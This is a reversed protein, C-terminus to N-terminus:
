RAIEVTVVADIGVTPRSAPAGSVVLRITHIGGGAWAEAIVPATPVFGASFRDVEGRGEGDVSVDVRGRTPGLPGVVMAAYADVTITATAGGIDSSAASGGVYGAFGANEWAGEYTFADDRHDRIRVVVPAAETWTAVGGSGDVPGARFRVPRDIPIATVVEDGPALTSALTAFADGGVAAEIRIRTNPSGGVALDWRVGVEVRGGDPVSVIRLGPEPAVMPPEPTPSSAPSPSVVAVVEAPIGNTLTTWRLASHGSDGYPRRESLIPVWAPDRWRAYAIEWLPAPPPTFATADWPWDAPRSWYAALHDLAARLTGGEAGRYSWLDIGRRAAIEAVAVKYQLAEQTYQMGDHERRTEEPIAGEPTVLDMLRRWHELARELDAAEGVYDTIAVRLLTGADGWNNTRESAAPLIVEGLWDQLASRDAASWAPTGDLLDAAFVFAAGYRSVILSTHCEGSNACADDVITVGRMWSRLIEAAVRGYRADDTLRYALALGYAASVDVGLTGTDDGEEIILPDVPRAVHGLDRDADALLEALATRYPEVGIAAAQARDRLEAVTVLYGRPEARPSPAVAPGPTAIPPLPRELTALVALMGVAIAVGLIPPWRGLLARRGGRAIARGIPSAAREGATPPVHDTM